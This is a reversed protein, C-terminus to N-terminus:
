NRKVSSRRKRLNSKRGYTIGRRISYEKLKDEFVKFPKNYEDKVEKRKGDIAKIIRNIDACRTKANEFDEDTELILTKDHQTTAIAWDKVAEINSLIEPLQKVFDDKVEFSIEGHREAAELEAVAREINKDSM